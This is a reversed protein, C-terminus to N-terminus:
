YALVSGVLGRRYTTVVQFYFLTLKEYITVSLEHRIQCIILKIRVSFSYPQTYAQVVNPFIAANSQFDHYHQLTQEFIAYPKQFLLVM